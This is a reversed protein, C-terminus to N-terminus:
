RAAMNSGRVAPAALGAHGWKMTEDVEVIAWFLLGVFLSM